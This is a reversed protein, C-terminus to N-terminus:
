KPLKPIDKENQMKSQMLVDPLVTKIFSYMIAISDAEHEVINKIPRQKTSDITLDPLKLLGEQVAEKSASGNGFVVQKAVRPAILYLLKHYETFLLRQITAICLKLSVFANPFKHMFADECAVYDPKYKCLLTRFEREYLHLSVVNGYTISDQKMEKSALDKARITGYITVRTSNNSPNYLGISWGTFNIGPDIGLIKINDSMVINEVESATM